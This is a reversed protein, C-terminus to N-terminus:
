LNGPEDIFILTNLKPNLFKNKGAYQNKLVNLTLNSANLKIGSKIIDSKSGAPIESALNNFLFHM